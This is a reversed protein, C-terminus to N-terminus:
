ICYRIYDIEQLTVLIKAIAKIEDADGGDSVDCVFMYLLADEYVHAAENDGIAAMARIEDVRKQAEYETLRKM